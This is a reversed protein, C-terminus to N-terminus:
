GPVRGPLIILEAVALGSEGAIAYVLFIRGNETYIAPDRLQNAPKDIAGWDSPGIPLAAGEYAEAPRLVEAPETVTWSSCDGSLHFASILIHEPADQGRSYFVFATSDTLLVAAHRMRPIIDRCKEFPSIGDSSRLLRGGIDLDKAIAYYSKQWKFVRFYFDGLAKGDCTFHIGDHSFAVSSKQGGSSHVSHFYMRIQRKDDDVHVDPSAIHGSFGTGKLSDLPLVGPDHIKWPGELQDAFALRIYQGNHHAFYLYYRGLPKPLWSPIRILSPGNINTGITDSLKPTIIPNAKFRRVSIRPTKQGPTIQTGISAILLIIAAIRM